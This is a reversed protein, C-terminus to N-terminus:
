FSNGEFEKTYRYGSLYSSLFPKILNIENQFNKNEKKM